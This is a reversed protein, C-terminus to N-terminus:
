KKGRSPLKLQEKKKIEPNPRYLLITRGILQVMVADTLEALQRAGHKKDIPCNQGLKVKVLEHAQLADQASELLNATLGERGVIVKASLGHGLGRLYRAQTNSLKLTTQKKETTDNM